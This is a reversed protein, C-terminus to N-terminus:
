LSRLITDFCVLFMPYSLIRTKYLSVHEDLRIVNRIGIFFIRTGVVNCLKMLMASVLTINWIFTLGLGLIVSKVVRAPDDNQFVTTTVFFSFSLSLIMAFYDVRSQYPELRGNKENISFFTFGCVKITTIVAPYPAKSFYKDLM